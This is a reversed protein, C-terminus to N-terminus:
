LVYLTILASKTWVTTVAEVKSVGLTQKEDSGVSSVSPTREPAPYAAKEGESGTEGPQHDADGVRRNRGFGFSPQITM